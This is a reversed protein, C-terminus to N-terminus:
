PPYYRHMDVKGSDQECACACVYPRSPPYRRSKIFTNRDRLLPVFGSRAGPVLQGTNIIRSGIAESAVHDFQSSTSMNWARAQGLYIDEAEIVAAALHGLEYNAPVLPKTTAM